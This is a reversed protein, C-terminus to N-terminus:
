EDALKAATKKRVEELTAQLRNLETHQSTLEPAYRSILYERRETMAQLHEATKKRLKLEEVFREDALNHLRARVQEPPEGASRLYANLYLEIAHISCLRAPAYRLKQGKTSGAFLSIAADYYAEALEFVQLPDAQSGPYTQPDTM